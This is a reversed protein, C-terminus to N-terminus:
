TEEMFAQLFSDFDQQKSLAKVHHGHELLSVLQEFLADFAPDKKASLSFLFILKVKKNNWYIPQKLIGVAIANKLACREIPHPIAFMSGYATPAIRERALVKEEYIPDCYGQLCLQKCLYHLIDEKKTFPLDSFFLSEKFFSTVPLPTESEKKFTSVIQEIDHDKPFGTCLYIPIDISEEIPLFSVILDPHLATIRQLDFMSMTDSIEIAFDQNRLLRQKLYTTAANGLPNLIVIRKVSRQQIKEVAGMIHLTFYGIEDEMLQVSFQDQFDMAICVSIDYLLPFHLKIDKILPNSLFSKSRIRSDLGLLHILVNNKFEDDKTLDFEYLHQIKDIEQEIFAQYMSVKASNTNTIKGSFLCSLYQLEMDSLLIHFHEQIGQSFQHALRDAEHNPQYDAITNISNGKNVRELMIAIHLIFSIVEFDRMMLSHQENFQLVYAKIENIDCSNFFNTYNSLNFNYQDIEHNMLYTYIQRQHEENGNIYLKNNKREIRIDPNRREIIRNISTIQKDLTTESIFLQDALEYYDTEKTSLIQKIIQIYRTKEMEELTPKAQKSFWPHVKNVQYGKGKISVILDPFIAIIEKIENRLTKESIQLRKALRQATIIEDEHFCQLISKQRKTIQEM